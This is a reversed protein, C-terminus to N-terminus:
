QRRRLDALAQQLEEVAQVEGRHPRDPGKARVEAVRDAGGM